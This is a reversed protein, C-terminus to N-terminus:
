GKQLTSIVVHQMIHGQLVQRHGEGDVPGTQDSRVARGMVPCEIEGEKAM